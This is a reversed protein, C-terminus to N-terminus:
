PKRWYTAGAGGGAAWPQGSVTNSTVAEAVPHDTPGLGPMLGSAVITTGSVQWWRGGDCGNGVIVGADNVGRAWTQASNGCKATLPIANSWGPGTQVWYVARDGALGVAIMGNPSIAQGGSYTDGAPPELPTPVGAADWVVARRTTGLNVGGVATGVASVENVTGADFGAPIALVRCPSGPTGPTNWLVPLSRSKNKALTVTLAGGALSGDPAISRAMGSELNTVCATSLRVGTWNHASGTWVMPFSPAGISNTGVIVTGSASIGFAQGPGLNDIGTAADWFFANTNSRGVVQGADNLGWALSNSGVGSLEPLLIASTVEFKEMGVGKKRSDDALTNTVAVDYLAVDADAAIEVDAIVETSSVFTTSWVHVRPDSTGSREWSAQSTRDFGSGIVHVLLRQGRDAYAPTTSTVALSTAPPIRAMQADRPEIVRTPEPSCAVVVVVALVPWMTAIAVLRPSSIRASREM